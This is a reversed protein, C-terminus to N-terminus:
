IIELRHSKLRLGDIHADNSLVEKCLAKNLERTKRVVYVYYGDPVAKKNVVVVSDAKGKVKVLTGDDKVETQNTDIMADIVTLEVKQALDRCRSLKETIKHKRDELVTIFSKLEDLYEAWQVISDNDQGRFGELTDDFSVQDIQGEELMSELIAQAERYQEGIEHLKLM